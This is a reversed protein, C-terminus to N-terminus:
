SESERVSVIEVDGGRARATTATSTALAKRSADAEDLAPIHQIVPQVRQGGIRFGITVDYFRILTGGV